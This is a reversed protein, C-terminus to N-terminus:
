GAWPSIKFGSIADKRTFIDDTEFVQSLDSMKAKIAYICNEIACVKKAPTQSKAIKYSIRYIYDV